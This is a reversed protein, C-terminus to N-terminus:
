LVKESERTLVIRVDEMMVSSKDERTLVSKRVLEQIFVRMRERLLVKILRGQLCLARDERMLVSREDDRTLVSKEGERTLVLRADECGEENSCDERSVKKVRGQFFM